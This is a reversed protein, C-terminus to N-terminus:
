FLWLSDVDDFCHEMEVVVMEGVVMPQKKHCLWCEYMLCECLYVM